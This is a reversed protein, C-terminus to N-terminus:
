DNKTGQMFNKMEKVISYLIKKDENSLDITQNKGYIDFLFVPNNENYFYYIVRVGSRKGKGKNAFRLKRVGGTGPILDGKKPNKALYEFLQSKESESLLKESEKIFQETEVITYMDITNMSYWITM